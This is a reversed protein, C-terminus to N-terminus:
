WASEQTHEEVGERESVFCFLGAFERTHSETLMGASPGGIEVCEDMELCLLVICYLLVCGVNGDVELVIGGM